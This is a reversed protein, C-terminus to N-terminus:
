RRRRIMALALAIALGGAAPATSCGTPTPMTAMDDDDDDDDDGSTEGDDDDDDDGVPDSPDDDDDGPESPAEYAAQSNIWAAGVDDNACGGFTYSGDEPYTQKSGNAEGVFYYEHCGGGVNVRASWVSWGAPDGLLPSLDVREGDVVVFLADPAEDLTWDVGFDVQGSPSKPLHIGMALARQPPGGGGFDQTYYSGSVGTGLEDFNTSMINARHGSSCMWGDIVTAWPSSYGQAINEGIANGSYYGYVRQAFSPGGQTDHSFYNRDDMDASHARAAEGLDHNWWLPRKPSKESGSFSNFSCPYDDTFAAPDVRVANTWFHTEREQHSPRGQVADGYGAWALGIIFTVM